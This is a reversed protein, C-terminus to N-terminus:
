QEASPSWHPRGAKFWQKEAWFIHYLAPDLRASFQPAKPHAVTNAAQQTSSFSAFTCLRVEDESLCFHEAIKATQSNILEDFDNRSQELRTDLPLSFSLSVALRFDQVIQRSDLLSLASELSDVRDM